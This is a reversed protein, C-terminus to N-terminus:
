EESWKLISPEIHAQSFNVTATFESCLLCDSVKAQQSKHSKNSLSHLFFYVKIKQSSSWASTVDDMSYTFLCLFSLIHFCWFQLM